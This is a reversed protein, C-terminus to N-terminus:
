TLVSTFYITPNLPFIIITAICKKLYVEFLLWLLIVIHSVSILVSYSDEFLVALQKNMIIDCFQTPLIYNIYRNNYYWVLIGVHKFCHFMFTSGDSSSLYHLALLSLLTAVIAIFYNLM